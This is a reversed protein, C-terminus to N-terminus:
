GVPSDGVAPRLILDGVLLVDQERPGEVHEGRVARGLLAQGAQQPEEGPGDPRPSCRDDRVPDLSARGHRDIGLLIRGHGLGQRGPEVSV